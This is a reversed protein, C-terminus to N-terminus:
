RGERIYELISPYLDTNDKDLVYVVYILWVFGFVIGTLINVVIHDFLFYVLLVVLTVPIAFLFLVLFGAFLARSFMAGHEKFFQHILFFPTMFLALMKLLNDTPKPPPPAVYENKRYPENNM